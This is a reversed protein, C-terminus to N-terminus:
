FLEVPEAGPDVLAERPRLQSALNAPKLALQGPEEPLGEAVGLDGVPDLRDGGLRADEVEALQLPHAVAEGVADGLGADGQAFPGLDLGGVTIQQPLHEGRGGVEPSHHYGAVVDTLGATSAPV